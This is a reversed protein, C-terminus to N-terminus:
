GVVRDGGFDAIWLNGGSVAMGRANMGAVTFSRIVRGDVPDIQVVQDASAAWINQDPGTVIGQSALGPVPYSTVRTPEATSFRAVSEVQAVWLNGDPGVTIDQPSRFDPSDYTAVTGTPTVKAIDDTGSTLIVWANGASDTTLRGPTEGLSFENAVTPVAGATAPALLATCLVAALLLPIRNM